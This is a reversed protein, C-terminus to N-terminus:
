SRGATGKGPGLRGQHLRAHHVLLRADEGKLQPNTDAYAKVARYVDERYDLGVSWEDLIKIQDTATERLAADMSTEKIIDLRNETLTIGYGVDDLARVTNAFNVEAPRLHGIQDLAATADAITRKVSAEIANTTTEFDPLRIISNFRAAETPFRGAYQTGAAHHSSTRTQHQLWGSHGRFRM